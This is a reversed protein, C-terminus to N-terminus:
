QVYMMILFVLKLRVSVIASNDTQQENDRFSKDTRGNEKAFLNAQCVLTDLNEPLLSYCFKALSAAGMKPERPEWSSCDTQPQVCVYGPPNVPKPFQEWGEHTDKVNCVYAGLHKPPKCVRMPQPSRDWPEDSAQTAAEDQRRRSSSSNTARYTGKHGVDSATPHEPCSTQVSLSTHCSRVRVEDSDSDDASLKMEQRSEPTKVGDAESTSDQLQVLNRQIDAVHGDSLHRLELTERGAFMAGHTGTTHRTSENACEGVKLPQTVPTIQNRLTSAAITEIFLRQMDAQNPTKQKARRGVLFGFVPPDTDKKRRITWKEEVSPQRCPESIGQEKTLPLQLDEQSQNKQKTEKRARVRGRAQPPFKVEEKVEPVVDAAQIMSVFKKTTEQTEEYVSSGCSTQDGDSRVSYCDKDTMDMCDLSILTTAPPQHGVKVEAVDSTHCVEESKETPEAELLVQPTQIFPDPVM